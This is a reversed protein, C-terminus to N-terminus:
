APRAIAAASPFNSPRFGELEMRSQLALDTLVALEQEREYIYKSMGSLSQDARGPHCMVEITSGPPLDRTGDRIIQMLGEVTLDGGHWEVLTREVCPVGCARLIGTMKPNLSRAVLGYYRAIELYANFANPYKHVHHHTDLHTIEIGASELARIQAHWEPVIDEFRANQLNTKSAPFNGNAGVLSSVRKRDLVPRGSTLQLHAGVHGRIAPAWRAIRDLSGPVAAMATTATLCGSQLAEVIGSCVGNTIGFDDANFVIYRYPRNNLGVSCCLRVAPLFYLRRPFYVERGEYIKARM